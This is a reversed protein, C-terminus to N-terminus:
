NIAFVLCTLTTVVGVMFMTAYFFEFVKDM